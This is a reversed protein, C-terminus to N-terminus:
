ESAATLYACGPFNLRSSGSSSTLRSHTLAQRGGSSGGREEPVPALSLCGASLLCLRGRFAKHVACFPGSPISAPTGRVTQLESRQWWKRWEVSVHPLVLEWHQLLWGHQRLLVSLLARCKPLATKMIRQNGLLDDSLIQGLYKEDAKIKNTKVSM